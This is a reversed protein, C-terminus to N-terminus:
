KKSRRFARERGFGDMLKRREEPSEADFVKDVLHHREVDAVISKFEQETFAGVAKLHLAKFITLSYGDMGAPVDETEYSHGVQEYIIKLLQRIIREISVGSEASLMKMMRYDDLGLIIQAKREPM